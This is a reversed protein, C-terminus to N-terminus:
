SRVRKMLAGIYSKALDILIGAESLFVPKRQGSSRKKLAIAGYAVISNGRYTSDADRFDRVSSFGAENLMWRLSNRTFINIHPALGGQKRLATLEEPVEVYLIGNDALLSYLHKVVVLPNAVHELMHNCFILNFPARTSPDKEDIGLDYSIFEVNSFNLAKNFLASFVDLFYGSGSGYDLVKLVADSRQSSIKSAIREAIRSQKKLLAASSKLGGSIENQVHGVAAGEYSHPFYNAYIQKRVLAAEDTYLHRDEFVPDRYFHGCVRCYKYSADIKDLDLLKM